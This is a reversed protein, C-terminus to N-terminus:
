TMRCHMVGLWICFGLVVLSVVGASITSVPVILKATGHHGNEEQIQKQWLSIGFSAGTLAAAFLLGGVIWATGILCDTGDGQVKSPLEEDDGISRVEASINRVERGNFEARVPWVELDMQTLDLSTRLTNTSNTFTPAESSM